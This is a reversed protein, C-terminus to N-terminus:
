RVVDISHILPYVRWQSSIIIIIIIIYTTPIAYVLPFIYFLNHAYGLLILWYCWRKDDDLISYIGDRYDNEEYDINIDGGGKSHTHEYNNHIMTMIIIIM